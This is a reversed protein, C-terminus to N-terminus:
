LVQGTSPIPLAMSHMGVLKTVVLFAIMSLENNQLEPPVIEILETNKMLGSSFNILSDFYYFQIFEDM